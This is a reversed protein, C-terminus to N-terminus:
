DEKVIWWDFKLDSEVAENIKLTFSEGKEKKSISWLIPDEALPTVFIKSDGDVAKTEIAVKTEGAKITATGITPSDDNNSISYKESSIEKASLRGLIDIDASNKVRDIGLTLKILDIDNENLNIQALILDNNTLEKIEKLQDQIAAMLKEFEGTKETLSEIDLKLKGTETEVSALQDNILSNVENEIDMQAIRKETEAEVQEVTVSKNKRSILVTITDSDKNSSELAVGVTTDGPDAKMAYGAKTAATLSDGSVIEGNENTVKTEVQGILGVLKYDKDKEALNAEAGPLNNGVFAPNSSIIGIANIDKTRKCREILNNNATNICVLEGSALDSDSSKFYEAYDAGPNYIAGDGYVDGDAQVKFKLDDAGGVDSSVTFINNDTTTENSDIDLAVSGIAGKIGVIGNLILSNTSFDGYILPTATSSNDIYLKNSGTESYGANYGLFVNLSGTSNLYGSQYGLATNQQGSTNAYLSYSGSATNQNGTTSQRLAMSGSATNNSGTTNYFLAQEGMAANSWGTTNSFLSGSGLATNNWGLTNSRLSQEGLATNSSGWTNSNLTYAGIAVNYEGDENGALSGIGAAVNYSGDVNSYLSGEGMAVNGFGYINSKLANEGLATNNSASGSVAGANEGVYTNSTGYTHIFRDTGSYIIGVSSTTDPLTLNGSITLDAVGSVDGSNFDWDGNIEGDAITNTGLDLIGSMTLNTIGAIAGDTITVAGITHASTNTATLVGALNLGGSATFDTNANGINSIVANQMNLLDGSTTPSLTTGDRTLVQPSASIQADVYAKTAADQNGTPDALNIIRNSELSLTGGAYDIARTFLADWSKSSSGLDFEINNRPIINGAYATGEVTLNGNITLNGELEGGKRKLRKDIDSSLDENAGGIAEALKDKTEAINTELEEQSDSVSETINKITEGVVAKFSTLGKNNISSYTINSNSDFITNYIVRGVFDTVPSYAESYAAISLFFLAAFVTFVTYLTEKVIKRMSGSYSKIIKQYTKFCLNILAIGITICCIYFALIFYNELSVYQKLNKVVTVTPSSNGPSYLIYTILTIFLLVLTNVLMNHAVKRLNEHDKHYDVMGRITMSIMVMCAIIAIFYDFFGSFPRFVLIKFIFLLAVAGLFYYFIIKKQNPNLMKKNKKFTISEKITNYWKKPLVPLVYFACLFWGYVYNSLTKQKESIDDKM